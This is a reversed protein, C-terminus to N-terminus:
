IEKSEYFIIKSEFSEMLTFFMNQSFYFLLLHIYYICWYYMQIVNHLDVSTVNGVVKIIALVILTAEVHVVNLVAVITLDAVMITKELCAIIITVIHISALIYPM